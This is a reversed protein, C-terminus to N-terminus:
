KQYKQNNISHKEMDAKKHGGGGRLNFDERHTRRLKFDLIARFPRLDLNRVTERSNEIRM